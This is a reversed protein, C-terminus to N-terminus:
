TCLVTPILLIAILFIVHHRSLMNPHSSSLQNIIEFETDHCMIHNFDVFQLEESLIVGHCRRTSM